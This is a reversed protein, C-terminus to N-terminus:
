LMRCYVIFVSGEAKHEYILLMGGPHTIINHINKIKRHMTYSLWFYGFVSIKVLPFINSIEKLIARYLESLLRYNLSVM